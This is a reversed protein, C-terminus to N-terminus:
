DPSTASRSWESARGAPLRCRGKAIGRERAPEVDDAFAEAPVLDRRDLRGRDVLVAPSTLRVVISAWEEPSHIEDSQGTQGILSVAGRMPHARREGIRPAIRQEGQNSDGALIIEVRRIQRREREVALCPAFTRGVAPAAIPM